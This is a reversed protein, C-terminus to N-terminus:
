GNAVEMQESVVTSFKFYEAKAGKVLFAVADFDTSSHREVEREMLDFFAQMSDTFDYSASILADASTVSTSNTNAM